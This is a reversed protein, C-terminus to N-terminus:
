GDDRPNTPGGMLPFKRFNNLTHFHELVMKKGKRVEPKELNTGEVQEQVTQSKGVARTSGGRDEYIFRIIKKTSPANGM